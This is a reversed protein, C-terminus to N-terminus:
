FRLHLQAQGFPGPGSREETSANYDLAQDQSRYHCCFDPEDGCFLRWRKEPGPENLVRNLRSKIRDQGWKCGAELSECKVGGAGVLALVGFILWFKSIKMIGM